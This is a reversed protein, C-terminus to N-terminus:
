DKLSVRPLMAMEHTALPTHLVTSEGPLLQPQEGVAAAGRAQLWIPSLAREPTIDSITGFLLEVDPSQLSACALFLDDRLEPDSTVTLTYMGVTRPEARLAIKYDVVLRELLEAFLQQEAFAIHGRLRRRYVPPPSQKDKSEYDLTGFRLRGQPDALCYLADAAFHVM